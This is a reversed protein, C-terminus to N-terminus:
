RTSYFPAEPCEDPTRQRVLACDCGFRSKDYGDVTCCEDLNAGGWYWVGPTDGVFKGEPDLDKVACGFDCWTDPYYEAGNWCGPDPWGGKGWHLRAPSCLPSSVLYGILNKFPENSQRVEQNYYVYDPGSVWLRPEDSAASLLGTEQGVFRINLWTRLGTDPAQSKLLSIAGELCDAMKDVPIAVGYDDHLIVRFVEADEIPFNIAARHTELTDNGVRTAFSNISSGVFLPTSNAAAIALNPPLPTPDEWSVGDAIDRGEENRSLNFPDNVRDM